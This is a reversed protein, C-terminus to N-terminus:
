KVLEELTDIVSKPSERVCFCSAVDHGIFGKFIDAGVVSLMNDWFGNVNFLVIPKNHRGLKKLTLIQFFEDFTGIGGPVIVFADALNEMKDKRESLTNTDILETCDEYIPEYDYMFHPTIGIIRGGNDHLGRAAAGMLGHAGAGYVMTHGRVAMERGLEYVREKYVNDVAESAAGYLTINM